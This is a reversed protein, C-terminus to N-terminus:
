GTWESFTWTGNDGMNQGRYAYKKKSAVAEDDWIQAIGPPNMVPSLTGPVPMLLEPGTTGDRFIERRWIRVGISATAPTGGGGTDIVTGGLVFPFTIPFTTGGTSSGTPTLEGLLLLLASM